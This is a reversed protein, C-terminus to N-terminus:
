DGECGAGHDQPLVVLSVGVSDVAWPELDPTSIHHAAPSLEQVPAMETVADVILGRPRVVTLVEGLMQYTIAALLL